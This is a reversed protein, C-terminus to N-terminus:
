KNNALVFGAVAIVVLVLSFGLAVLAYVAASSSRSEVVQGRM